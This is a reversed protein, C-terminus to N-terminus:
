ADKVSQQNLFMKSIFAMMCETYYKPWFSHKTHLNASCVSVSHSTLRATAHQVWTFFPRPEVRLRSATPYCDFQDCGNHRQEGLLSIPLLGSLPQSPLQPGLPFHHSGVTPNIVWTVQLSVALFQSWSRFEVSPLRIISVIQKLMHM